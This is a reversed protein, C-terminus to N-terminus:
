PVIVVGTSPHYRHWDRERAERKMVAYKTEADSRRSPNDSLESMEFVSASWRRQDTFLVPVSVRVTEDSM